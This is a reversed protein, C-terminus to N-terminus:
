EEWASWLAAPKGGNGQREEGVKFFLKPNGWIANQVQSRPKGMGIAIQSISAPKGHAILWRLIPTSQSYRISM